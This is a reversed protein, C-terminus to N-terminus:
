RVQYALIVDDQASPQTSVQINVPKLISGLAILRKLDDVSGQPDIKFRVGQASVESANLDKVPALGQLYAAIKAYGDIDNVGHIDIYINSAGTERLFLAYKASVLDSAKDVGSTSLLDLENSHIQWNKQHQNILLDWEVQWEGAGWLYRGVLVSEKQYRRSVTLVNDWFGGWLDVFSLRMRDAEDYEPWIIPLGRLKAAKEIEDKIPSKDRQRLVYRQGGDRVAIWVLTEPRLKSWVPLQSNKLLKNVEGIDFKIWLINNFLEPVPAERTAAPQVFDNPLELYRFQSVYKLVHSRAEHILPNGLVVSSGVVKLLVQQFAKQFIEHRTKRTQDSVAFEAEYLHEVVTATVPASNLLLLGALLGLISKKRLFKVILQM